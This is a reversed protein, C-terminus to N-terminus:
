RIMVRQWQTARQKTNGVAKRKGKAEGNGEAKCQRAVNGRWHGRGRQRGKMLCVLDVNNIGDGDVNVLEDHAAQM